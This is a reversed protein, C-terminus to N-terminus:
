TRSTAEKLGEVFAAFVAARFTLNGCNPAKSDRVATRAQSNAIEVCNNGDGGGSYSSRRWGESTIAARRM